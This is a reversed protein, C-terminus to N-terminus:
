GNNLGERKMFVKLGFHEREIEKREDRLVHFSYLFRRAAWGPVGPLSSGGQCCSDLKAPTFPIIIRPAPLGHTVEMSCGGGHTDPLLSLAAM